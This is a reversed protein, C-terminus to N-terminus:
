KKEKVGIDHPWLPFNRNKDRELDSSRAKHFSVVAVAGGDSTTKTYDIKLYIRIKEVDGTSKNEFPLKSDTIFVLLDNGNHGKTYSQTFHAFDPFKLNHITNLVGSKTYKYKRKFEANAPPAAEIQVANCKRMRAIADNVTKENLRYKGGHISSLVEVRNRQNATLKDPCLNYLRAWVDYNVTASIDEESLNLLEDDSYDNLELDYDDYGLEYKSADDVVLICYFYNYLDSLNPEESAKIYRVM